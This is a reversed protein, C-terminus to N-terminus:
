RIIVNSHVAMEKIQVNVTRTLCKLDDPLDSEFSLHFQILIIWSEALNRKPVWGYFAVGVWLMGSSVLFLFASNEKRFPELILSLNCVLFEIPEANDGLIVYLQIHSGKSLSAEIPEPSQHIALLDLQSNLYHEIVPDSIWSLELLSEKM